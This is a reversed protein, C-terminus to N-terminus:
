RQAHDALLQGRAGPLLPPPPTRREALGLLADLELLEALTGRDVRRPCALELLEAEELRLHVAAPADVGLGVDVDRGRALRERAEADRRPM